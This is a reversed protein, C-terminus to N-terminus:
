FLKFVKAAVLGGILWVYTPIKTGTQPTEANVEKKVVAPTTEAKIAEEVKTTVVQAVPNPQLAPQQVATVIDNNASQIQQGITQVPQNQAQAQAVAQQKIQCAKTNFLAGLAGCNQNTGTVGSVVNGVTQIATGIAGAGPIAGIVGGVINTVPKIVSGVANGVNSFFNGVGKLFGVQLNEIRDKDNEESYVATALKIYANPIDSMIAGVRAAEFFETPKSDQLTKIIALEKIKQENPICSNNIKERWYPLVAGKITKVKLETAKEEKVSNDVNQSNNLRTQELSQDLEECACGIALLRPDTLFAERGVGILLTSM